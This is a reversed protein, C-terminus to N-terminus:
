KSHRSAMISRRLCCSALFFDAYSVGETGIVEVLSMSNSSRKVTIANTRSGTAEIM